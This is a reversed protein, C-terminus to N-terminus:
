KTTGILKTTCKRILQSKNVWISKHTRRDPQSATHAQTIELDTCKNTTVRPNQSTWDEQSTISSTNIYSWWWWDINGGGGHENRRCADLDVSCIQQRVFGKMRLIIRSVNQNCGRSHECSQHTHLSPKWVYWHNRLNAIRFDCLYVWSHRTNYLIGDYMSTTRMLNVWLHFSDM